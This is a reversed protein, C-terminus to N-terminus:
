SELQGLSFWQNASKLCLHEQGAISRIQGQEVLGYYVNRHLLAKMGYRMSVYPRQLDGEGELWLSCNDQGLLVKDETNTIFEIFEIGDENVVTQYQVILFPADEVRIKVKEVPTVLYHEGNEYWLIHSFMKVMAPRNLKEGEHFWDGNAKILMDMDGCFDPNWLHVPPLSDDSKENLLSMDLM